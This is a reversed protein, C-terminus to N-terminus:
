RGGGYLSVIVGDNENHQVQLDAKGVPAVKWGTAVTEWGKGNPARKAIRLGNFTIFTGERTTHYWLTGAGYRGLKFRKEESPQQMGGGTLQLDDGDWKWWPTM